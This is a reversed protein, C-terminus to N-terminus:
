FGLGLVKFGLGIAPRAPGLPRASVPYDLEDEELDQARPAASPTAEPQPPAASDPKKDFRQFGDNVEECGRMNKKNRTLSIRMGKREFGEERGM